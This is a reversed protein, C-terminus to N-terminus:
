LWLSIIKYGDYDVVEGEWKEFDLYPSLPTKHRVFSLNLFFNACRDSIHCRHQCRANNYGEWYKWIKSLDSPESRESAVDM